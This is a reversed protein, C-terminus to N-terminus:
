QLVVVFAALSPRPPSPLDPIIGVVFMAGFLAVYSEISVQAEAM